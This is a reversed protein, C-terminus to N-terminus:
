RRTVVEYDGEPRRDSYRPVERGDILEVIKYIVKSPGVSIPTVSVIKRVYNQTERYPPITQGYKDVATPGANYAALALEVKQDYRDLLRRLYAVGARINEAPDFPNVVGYEEATAPMLQMLGMAGKPSIAFPNFASEARIVARVLDASVGNRRAHTEILPDYAAARSTWSRAAPQVHPVRRTTGTTGSVSAALDSLVRQTDAETWSDGQAAAQLPLAVLLGAATLSQLFNCRL